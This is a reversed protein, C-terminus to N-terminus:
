FNMAKIELETIVAVVTVSHAPITYDTCRSAVPRFAWPDFGPPPSIKQLQGSRNQPGGLRRYLPYYTKGPLLTALAHCQGCVGM